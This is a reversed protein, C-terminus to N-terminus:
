PYFKLKRKLIETILLVIVGLILSVYTLGFFKAEPVGFLVDSLLFFFVAEFFLSFYMMGALALIVSVWFPLFLISLLLLISAFIRM